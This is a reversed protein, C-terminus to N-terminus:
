DGTHLWIYKDKEWIILNSAGESSAVSIAPLAIKITKNGEMDGEDSFVTLAVEKDRYVKWVELFKLDDGVHAFNEGAGILYAELSQGHIILIGEKNTEKEKIFLAIDLVADGNFDTELYFPNISNDIYVPRETKIQEVKTGVWFPLCERLKYDSFTLSQASANFVLTFLIIALYTHRIM